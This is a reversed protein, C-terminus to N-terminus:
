TRDHLLKGGKQNLPHCFKYNNTGKCGHFDCCHIVYNQTDNNFEVNEPQQLRLAVKPAVTSYYNMRLPLLMRTSYAEITLLNIPELIHPISNYNLKDLPVVGRKTKTFWDYFDDMLTINDRRPLVYEDIDISVFVDMGLEVGRQKCMVESLYKVHMMDLFKRNAKRFLWTHQTWWPSKVMEVFGTKIWPDLEAFTTTSNNDFIVIKDFGQVEYYAVWESLFGEENKVMPCVIGKWKTQKRPKTFNGLECNPLRQFLPSNEDIRYDRPESLLLCFSSFLVLFYLINCQHINTIM